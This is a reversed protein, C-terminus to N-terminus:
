RMATRLLFSRFALARANRNQHPPVKTKDGLGPSGSLRHARDGRAAFNGPKISRDLGRHGRRFCHGNSTKSSIVRVDAAFDGVGDARAHTLQRFAM